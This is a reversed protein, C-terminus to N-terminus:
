NVVGKIRQGVVPSLLLARLQREFFGGTWRGGGEGGTLVLTGTPTLARRL